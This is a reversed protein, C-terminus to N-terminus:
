YARKYYTTPGDVYAESTILTDSDISFFAETGNDIVLVLTSDSNPNLHNKIRYKLEYPYSKTLNGNTLYDVSDNTKFRVMMTYGETAPSTVDQSFGGEITKLWEWSGLLEKGRKIDADNSEKSCCWFCIIAFFCICGNLIIDNRKM